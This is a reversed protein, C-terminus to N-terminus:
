EYLGSEKINSLRAGSDSKFSRVYAFPWTLYFHIRRAFKHSVAGPCMAMMFHPGGKM